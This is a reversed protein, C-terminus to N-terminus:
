PMFHIERYAKALREAFGEPAMNDFMACTQQNFGYGLLEASNMIVKPESRIFDVILLASADYKYQHETETNPRHTFSNFIKIFKELAVNKAKFKVINSKMAKDDLEVLPLLYVEGMVISKARLRLNLTEAFAREMLTDFNKDVSSMQSRVGVVISKQTAEFGIPDIKGEELGVNILVPKQAQNLFVIDQNKAKLHGYVKLEPSNSGIPPHVVWGDGALQNYISVKSAEHIKMILNQSRILAEKAAHGSEYAVGKYKASTIADFLDNKFESVASNILKLDM